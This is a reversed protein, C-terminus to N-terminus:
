VGRLIQEMADAAQQQMDPLVHGYLDLTIAISSHGLVESVVKVNIGQLLLLTAATHRLDHFRIRPLEARQVLARFQRYLRFASL